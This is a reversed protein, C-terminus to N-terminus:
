SRSPVTIPGDLYTVNIVLDSSVATFGSEGSSCIAYHAGSFTTKFLKGSACEVAEKGISASPIPTADNLAPLIKDFPLTNPPLCRVTEEDDGVKTSLYATGDVLTYTIEEDEDLFTAYSDYLVSAGNSSVVPTAYVNFESQGHLKM